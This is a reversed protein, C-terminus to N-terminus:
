VPPFTGQVQVVTKRARIRSWQSRCNTRNQGHGLAQNKRDESGTIMYGKTAGRPPNSNVMLDNFESRQAIHHGGFDLGVAIARVDPSPSPLLEAKNTGAPGGPLWRDNGDLIGSQPLNQRARVLLLLLQQRRILM